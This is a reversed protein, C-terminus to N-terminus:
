IIKLYEKIREENEKEKDGKYYIEIFDITNNEIKQHSFIYSGL